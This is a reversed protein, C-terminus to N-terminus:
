EWNSGNTMCLSHSVTLTRNELNIDEKWRIATAENVPLGTMFYLWIIIFSYHEYYHDLNFTSLVKQFENKTWFEVKVKEKKIAGVQKIRNTKIM